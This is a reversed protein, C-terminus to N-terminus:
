DKWSLSCSLMSVSYSSHLPCGQAARGVVQQKEQIEAVISKGDVMAQFSYVASDEDMPFVFFAEVPDAEENKYDLTASVDAVFERISVAVSISKLPVPPLFHM